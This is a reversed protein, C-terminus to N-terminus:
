RIATRVGISARYTKVVSNACADCYSLDSKCIDMIWDGIQHEYSCTTFTRNYRVIYGYDFALTSTTTASVAPASTATDTAELTALSLSDRYGLAALPLLAVIKSGIAKDM